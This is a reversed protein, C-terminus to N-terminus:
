NTTMYTLLGLKEGKKKTYIEGETIDLVMCYLHSVLDTWNEMITKNLLNKRVAIFVRNEKCDNAGAPWYLNFGTHALNKEGLFPEQICVIGANLGLGAELASITCEYGKRYNQQIVLILLRRHLRPKQWRWVGAGRGQFKSEIKRRRFRNRYWVRPKRGNRRKRRWKLRIPAPVFLASHHGTQM